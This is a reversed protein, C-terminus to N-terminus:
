AVADSSKEGNTNHRFFDEPPMSRMDVRCTAKAADSATNAMRRFALHLPWPLLPRGTQRSLHRIANRAFVCFSIRAALKASIGRVM